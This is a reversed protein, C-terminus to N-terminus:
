TKKRELQETAWKNVGYENKTTTAALPIEVWFMSKLGTVVCQFKTGIVSADTQWPKRKSYKKATFHTTDPKQRIAHTPKCRAPRLNLNHPPRCMGQNDYQVRM